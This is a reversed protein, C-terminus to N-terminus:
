TEGEEAKRPQARHSMNALQAARLSDMRRERAEAAQRQPRNTKEGRYDSRQLHAIFNSIMGSIRRSTDKLHEFDAASIYEKVEEFVAEFGSAVRLHPDTINKDMLSEASTHVGKHMLVDGVAALTIHTEKEDSSKGESQLADENWDNGICGAFITGLMLGIVFVAGLTRTNM